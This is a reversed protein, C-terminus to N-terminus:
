ALLLLFVVLSWAWVCLFLHLDARWDRSAEPFAPSAPAPMVGAM